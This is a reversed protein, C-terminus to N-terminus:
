ALCAPRMSLQAYGLVGLLPMVNGAFAHYAWCGRPNSNPLTDRSLM